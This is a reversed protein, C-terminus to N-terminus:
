WGWLFARVALRAWVGMVAAVGIFVSMGFAASALASALKAADNKM